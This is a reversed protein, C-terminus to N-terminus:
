LLKKDVSVLLRTSNLYQISFDLVDGESLCRAESFEYWGKCLYSETKTDSSKLKCAYLVDWNNDYLEYYRM